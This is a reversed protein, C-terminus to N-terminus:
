CILPKHTHPVNLTGRTARGGTSLCQQVLWCHCGPRTERLHGHVGHRATAHVDHRRAVVLAVEVPEAFFAVPGDAPLKPPSMPNWHPVLSHIKIALIPLAFQE